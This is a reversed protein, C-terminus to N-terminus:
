ISQGSNPEDAKIKESRAALMAAVNPDSISAIAHLHRDCLHSWAATRDAAKFLMTWKDFAQSVQRHICTACDSM